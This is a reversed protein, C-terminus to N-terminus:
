REEDDRGDQCTLIQGGAEAFAAMTPPSFLILVCLGCSSM